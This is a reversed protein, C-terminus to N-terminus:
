MAVYFQVIDQESRSSIYFNAVKTYGLQDRWIFLHGLLTSRRGINRRFHELILAIAVKRTIDPASTDYEVGHEETRYWKLSAIHVVQM